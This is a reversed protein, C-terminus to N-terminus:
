PEDPGLDLPMAFNRSLVRPDCCTKGLPHAVCEEFRTSGVGKFYCSMIAIMARVPNRYRGRHKVGADSQVRGDWPPTDDFPISTSLRVQRPPLRLSSLPTVTTTTSAFCPALLWCSRTCRCSTRILWARPAFRSSRCDVVMSTLDDGMDELLGSVTENAEVALLKSNSHARDTDASSANVCKATATLMDTFSNAELMTTRFSIIDLYAQRGFLLLGGGSVGDAAFQM